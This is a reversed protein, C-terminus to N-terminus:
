KLRAGMRRERKSFAIIADIIDSTKIDPFYKELFYLETPAGNLWGIDSTRMEGSTRILLDASQIVGKGDRLQWLLNENVPLNNDLSRMKELVRLEQDQGSFDIALCVIQYNFLETEKELNTIKKVLSKPLKDKRGIHIFRRRSKIFDNRLNDLANNFITMLGAIEINNRKWNDSSFAWLTVIKIESIQALDRLILEAQKFGTWHGKSVPLNHSKAWRGNGDPIICIHRPFKDAPIERLKPFEDLINLM